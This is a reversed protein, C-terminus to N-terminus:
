FGKIKKQKAIKRLFMLNIIFIKKRSRNDREMKKLFNPIPLMRLRGVLNWLLAQPCPNTVKVLANM